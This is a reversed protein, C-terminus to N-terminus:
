GTFNSQTFGLFAAVAICMVLIARRRQEAAAAADRIFSEARHVLESYVRDAADLPLSDHGNLRFVLSSSPESTLAEAYNGREISNLLDNILGDLSEREHRSDSPQSFTITCRILRLEFGCIGIIDLELSCM